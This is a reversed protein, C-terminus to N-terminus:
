SALTRTVGRRRRRAAMAGVALLGMAILGFTAPEPIVSTSTEAGVEIDATLWYTQGAVLPVTTHLLDMSSLQFPSTSQTVGRAFSQFFTTNIGVISGTGFGFSAEIGAAASEGPGAEANLDVDHLTFLLDLFGDFTPSFFWPDTSRGAGLGPAGRVNAFAMLDASRETVTLFLGLVHLIESSVWSGSGSARVGGVTIFNGSLDSNGTGFPPPFKPIPPSPPGHGLGILIGLASLPRTGFSIACAVPPPPNLRFTAAVAVVGSAEAYSCTTGTATAPLLVNTTTKIQLVGVSGALATQADAGRLALITALSLAACNRFFVPTTM